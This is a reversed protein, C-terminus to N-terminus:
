SPSQMYQSSPQGYKEPDNNSTLFESGPLAGQSEAEGYDPQVINQKNKFVPLTELDLHNQQLQQNHVLENSKSEEDHGYGGYDLDHNQVGGIMEPQGYPSAM